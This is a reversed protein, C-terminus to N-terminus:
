RSLFQKNSYFFQYNILINIFQITLKEKDQDLTVIIIGVISFICSNIEQNNQNQVQSNSLNNIIHIM